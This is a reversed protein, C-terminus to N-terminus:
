LALHSNPDLGVLDELMKFLLLFYPSKINEKVWINVTLM